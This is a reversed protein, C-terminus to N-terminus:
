LKWPCFVSVLGKENPSQTTTMHVYKNAFPSTRILVALDVAHLIFMYLLQKM